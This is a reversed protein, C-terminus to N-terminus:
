NQTDSVKRLEAEFTKDQALEGLLADVHGSTVDGAVLTPHREALAFALRTAHEESVQFKELLTTRFEVFREVDDAGPVELDRITDDAM